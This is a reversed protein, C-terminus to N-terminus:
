FNMKLGINAKAGYYEAQKTHSKDGQYYRLPENLINNVSAFISFNSNINYGASVDMHTVKDYYSDYFASEGWEDIFDDAYQLSLRVNLKKGEYFLSLNVNNEPTGVISLNENERGSINVNKMKSHTYTYNAYFGMDSLFGPLFDLQRQFAFEFGYLDADGVNIPQYFKDWTKGSYSFDRREITNSIDSLSKYFFGGSLLGVNSYYHEAMVDFNMSNTPDLKPNGIEIENDELKIKSHPVLDYYKPRSISNTWALKLKTNESLSLKAIVSPLINTYDNKEKATTSITPDGVEPIELIRGSYKLKTQEARLGFIMKLKKGFDQDLRVYGAYVDEKAEFNGAEEEINRTQSYQNDFNLGGLFQKSVFHGASYDGAMFDSKSADYQNNLANNVFSNEDNPEIDNFSNNRNKEKSKLRFGTQIINKNKGSLIPFKIDIKLNKDIDETYQFQETLEKLGFESSLDALQPDNVSFMPKETNTFNPTIAVKKARLTIYRENPRDESAKSYSGKWDIEITGLHHEGNLAFNMTQQDELRRNKNTGGKTQRRVETIWNGDKQEIDKYQLRFRNEWDKRHNYIAKFEIKHNPNFNYDFSSSYSQRIRQVYYTRIQFDSTYIAGRDDKEWEAEINDSGLQNDQYSASFVMGLNSQTGTKFRNGYLASLILQPDDSLFNYGTGVRASIQQKFPNSRTILNVSGGIADAEMDPTIVKNVEVTQIMDSPVLDLQVSRIGAEASPIRDGNITVSNYESATGRIHGFRAEGQDYEVNIGPIRKLADGINNDPFQGVQDSSVINTINVNSKQQNLARSQEKLLGQVVVEQLAVGESLTFNETLTTSEEFVIKKEVSEYGIYSIKLTYEGPTINNIRYVGNNDSAVGQNTEKLVLTAGPLPYDDSDIVRGTITATRNVNIANNNEAITSTASFLLLVFLNLTIFLTKM